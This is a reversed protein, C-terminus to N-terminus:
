SRSRDDARAVTKATSGRVSRPLEGAAALAMLAVGALTGGFFGVALYLSNSM